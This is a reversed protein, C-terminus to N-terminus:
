DGSGSRDRSFRRAKRAHPHITEGAAIRVALQEYGTTEEDWRFRARALGRSIEGQRKVLTADQELSSLHRELDAADEFFWAQNDLVERNFGVDYALVATGAGMARLLSPNTGGVSHGHIYTHAHVYLADLLDQDFVSGLFRIRPDGGAAEHVRQTYDASYPASGVVALPMRAGSARYGEVIELLHNEPEFRAVVLHYSGPDLEFGALGEPPASELIPAGYRLLETPVGFESRYYDAIGPADAILADAWRVGFQEAWRYYSKGRGGWKSRKWEIGDMHLVVPIGRGRLLPVFPANAANFVFAADPAKRTIAHLTSLGTHSLTELQKSRLAPLHVVDMGLYQTERHDSSRTYVTIRHGREVLRKGVEEVATEFGGYAAPVGRTGIMAIHLSTTPTPVRERLGKDSM